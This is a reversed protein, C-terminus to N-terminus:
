KWIRTVVHGRQRLQDQVSGEGALHGAGVAVFVTGPQAMRQEIWQVWNTNRDTLLRDYLYEDGMESNMIEALRVADGELWEAVMENVMPVVENMSGVTLDLYTLQFSMEMEDFLAIQQEMTELEGRTKTGARESLASEVGASPNYGAQLLPLVSLNIAAFWPEFGDLAAVPLGLATIAVEYENRDDDTMLERLTQGGQLTAAEAIFVAMAEQNSVDVETVLTDSAAFAREVRPDFWEIGDPLVHVTGFLYITTDEDSLQWLAPGPIAGAPPTEALGAELPAACSALTLALATTATALLRKISM